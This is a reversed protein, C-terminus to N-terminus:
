RTSSPCTLLETYYIFESVPFRM